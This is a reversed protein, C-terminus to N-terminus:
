PVSLVGPGLTGPTPDEPRHEFYYYGAGAAVLVVAATVGWFWGSRLVSSPPQDQAGHEFRIAAAPESAASARDIRPSLVPIPVVLEVDAQQGRVLAVTRQAVVEGSQGAKGDDGGGGAGGGGVGGAGGAAGGGRSARRVAIAHSGPDVAIPAAISRVVGDLEVVDGAALGTVRIQLTPIAADLKVLADRALKRFRESDRSPPQALFAAYSARAAVLRDTYEQAVALNFLTLPRPDLAYSQEFRERALEWNKDRAAKLGQQKLEGAPDASADPAIPAAALVAAIAIIRPLQM